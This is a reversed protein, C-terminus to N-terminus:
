ADANGSAHRRIFVLSEAILTRLTVITRSNKERLEKFFEQNASPLEPEQKWAKERELQRTLEAELIEVLLGREEPSLRRDFGTLVALRSELEAVQNELSARAERAATIESAAEAQAASLAERALEKGAELQSEFRARNTASEMRVADIEARREQAEATSRALESRLRSLEEEYHTRNPLEGGDERVERLRSELEAVRRTLIDERQAAQRLLERQERAHQAESERLLNDVQAEDVRSALNEMMERSRGLQQELNAIEEEFNEHARIRATISDVMAQLHTEKERSLSLARRHEELEHRLQEVLFARAGSEEELVPPASQVVEPVEIKPSLAVEVSPASDTPLDAPFEVPKANAQEGSLPEEVASDGSSSGSAEAPLPVEPISEVPATPHLPSLPSWSLPGTPFEVIVTEKKNAVSKPIKPAPSPKQTEPRAKRLVQEINEATIPRGARRLRAVAWARAAGTWSIEPGSRRLPKRYPM